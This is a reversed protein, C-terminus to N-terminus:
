NFGSSKFKTSDRKSLIPNKCPWDFGYNPSNWSITFQPNDGYYTSQKYHFIAVNSLVYHGNGFMPPILVQFRNNEDIVFSEWKGFESSSGDNNVVILHISGYLCSVLKWTNADGHIGRLVNKQSISVDDQLFYVSLGAKKYERLNYLELYRGRHDNFDTTPWIKKVGKLKTDIVKLGGM